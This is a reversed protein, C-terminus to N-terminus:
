YHPYMFKIAAADGQSIHYALGPVQGKLPLLFLPAVGQANAMGIQALPYSNPDTASYPVQYNVTPMGAISDYHMISAYDYTSHYDPAAAIRRYSRVLGWGFREGFGDVETLQQFTVHNAQAAQWAPAFGALHQPRFQVYIDRDPRQHEHLLGFVHGLEHAIQWVPNPHERGPTDVPGQTLYHAGTERGQYGAPAHAGGVLGPDYKIRVAARPMGKTWQNNADYCHPYNNNVPHKWRKFELAHGSEQSATGMVSTWVLWAQDMRQVTIKTEALENEFCWYITFM